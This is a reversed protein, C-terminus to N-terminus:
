YQVSRSELSQIDNLVAVLNPLVPIAHYFVPVLENSGRLRLALFFHVGVYRIAEHIFVADIMSKEVLLRTTPGVLRLREIQIGFDALITVKETHVAALMLLAMASLVGVCLCIATPQSVADFVHLALCAASIGLALLSRGKTIVCLRQPDSSSFIIFGECPVEKAFKLM